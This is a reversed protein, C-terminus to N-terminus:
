QPQTVPYFKYALSGDKFHSFDNKFEILRDEIIESKVIWFQAGAVKAKNQENEDSSSSVIGMVLSNGFIVRARRILEVGDFSSGLVNYDVFICDPWKDPKEKLDILLQEAKDTSDVTTLKVNIDFINCADEFVLHFLSEDDVLLSSRLM